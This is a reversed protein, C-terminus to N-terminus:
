SRLAGRRPRDPELDPLRVVVAEPERRPRWGSDDDRREEVLSMGESPTRREECLGLM